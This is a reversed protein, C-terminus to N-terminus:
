AASRAPATSDRPEAWRCPAAARRDANLRFRMRLETGGTARKVVSFGDSMSAIVALGMGLGPSQTRTELGHGDDGILVWLEEGALAATVHVQGTEDGYAHRVANTVAESVALGLAEVQTADAGAECAFEVLARRARPVTEPEALYSRSFFYGQKAVASM